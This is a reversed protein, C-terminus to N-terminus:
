TGLVTFLGPRRDEDVESRKLFRGSNFRPQNRFQVGSVLLSKVSNFFSVPLTLSWTRVLLKGLLLLWAHPRYLKMHRDEFM